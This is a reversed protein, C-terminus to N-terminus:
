RTHIKTLRAIKRLHVMSGYFFMAILSIFFIMWCVCILPLAFGSFNLAKIVFSVALLGLTELLLRKFDNLNESPRTFDIKLIFVSFSGSLLAAAVVGSAGFVFGALLGALSFTLLAAVNSLLYRELFGTSLYYLYDGIILFPLLHFVLMFKFVWTLEPTLISGIWTELFFDSFLFIILGAYVFFRALLMNVDRILGIGNQSSVLFERLIRSQLSNIIPGRASLVGNFVGTFASYVGFFYPDAFFSFLLKDIQTFFVWVISSLSVSGIFRWDHRSLQPENRAYPAGSLVVNVFNRWGLAIYIIGEALVSILSLIIFLDILSTNPFAYTAILLFPFRFSANVLNGYYVVFAKGAGILIGRFPLSLLRLSFTFYIIALPSGLKMSEDSFLPIVDLFHFKDSALLVIGSFSIIFLLYAFLIRSFQRAKKAQGFDSRQAVFRSLSQILGGELLLFMSLILYFYGISAFAEPGFKRLLMPAVVVASLFSYAQSFYGALIDKKM